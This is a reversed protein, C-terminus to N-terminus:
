RVSARYHYDYAHRYGMGHYLALAPRNTAEVSLAAFRAGAEVAWALGSRMVATAHGRGRQDAATAVNSAFVIGGAMSMLASSVPRGEASHLLLGCAPGSIAAVIAKLRDLTADDYNQLEAQAQLWTPHTIPLLDVRRDGESGFQGLPRILVRSEGEVRWGAADLAERLNPGVLPTIRFTPRLARGELWLESAAIRAVVDDDDDPDLCQVSNARRTYGGAARRVWARDNETECAPWAELGAGDIERVGPLDL